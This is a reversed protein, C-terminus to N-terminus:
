NSHSQKEDDQAKEKKLYKEALEAGRPSYRGEVLKGNLVLAQMVYPDKADDFVSFFDQSERGDFYTILTRVCRGKDDHFFKTHETPKGRMFYQRERLMNRLRGSTFRKTVSKFGDLREITEIGKELDNHQFEKQGLTNVRGIAANNWANRAPTVSYMWEGDKRIIKAAADWVIERDSLRLVVNTGRDVKYAFTQVSGDALTLGGLSAIRGADSPKGKVVQIQPSEGQEILINKGNSLSIGTVGRTKRNIQTALVVRGGEKIEAAINGEYSFDFSGEKVEMAILRGQRFVFKAHGQDKCACQATIISGTIKASWPRKSLLLSPEKKDRVFYRQFGDPQYMCFIDPFTQVIRSELLPVCWGYGAVPSRNASDSRFYAYFPLRAGASTEIDGLKQILLAHGQKDVGEFPGKLQWLERWVIGCASVPPAIILVWAALLCASSVSWSHFVGRVAHGCREHIGFRTLIGVYQM